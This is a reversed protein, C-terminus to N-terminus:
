SGIVSGARFVDRPPQSLLQWATAACLPVQGNGIAKLRDARSKVGKAIRPVLTEESFDKGVGVSMHPRLCDCAAGAKASVGKCMGQVGCVEIAQTSGRPLGCLSDGCEDALQQVPKQRQPAQTPEKDFWVARLREGRVVAAGDQAWKNFQEHEVDELCTWNIPWHM